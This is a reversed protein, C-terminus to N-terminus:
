NDKFQDVRSSGRGRTSSSGGRGRGGRYGPRYGGREGRGATSYWGRGREKGRGRNLGLPSLHSSVELDKCLSGVKDGYLFERNPQLRKLQTRAGKYNGVLREYQHRRMILTRSFTAGAIKTVDSLDKAWHDMLSQRLYKLIQSAEERPNEIVIDPNEFDSIANGLEDSKDQIKMLVQTSIAGVAGQASQIEILMKERDKRDQYQLDPLQLSLKLNIDIHVLSVQSDAKQAAFMRAEPHDTYKKVIGKINPKKWGDPGYESTVKRGTEWLKVQM